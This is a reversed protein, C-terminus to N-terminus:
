EARFSNIVRCSVGAERFRAKSAVALHSIACAPVSDNTLTLVTKAKDALAPFLETSLM